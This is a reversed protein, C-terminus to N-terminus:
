PAAPRASAGQSANAASRCCLDPAWVPAPNLVFRTCETGLSAKGRQRLCSALGVPERCMQRGLHGQPRLLRPQRAAGGLRDCPHSRCDPPQDPTLSPSARATGRRPDVFRGTDPRIPTVISGGAGMAVESQVDSAFSASKFSLHRLFRRCSRNSDKEPGRGSRLISGRVFAGPPAMVELGDDLREADFHDLLDLHGRGLLALLHDAVGAVVDERQAGFVHDDVQEGVRPVPAILAFWHPPTM